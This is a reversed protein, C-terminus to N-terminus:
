LYTRHCDTIQVATWIIVKLGLQVTDLFHNNTIFKFTMGIRSCIELTLQFLAMHYIAHWFYCRWYKNWHESPLTKDPSYKCIVEKWWGREPWIKRTKNTSCNIFYIQQGYNVYWEWQKLSTSMNRPTQTQTHIHTHAHISETSYSDLM